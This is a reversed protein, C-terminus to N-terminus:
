RRLHFKGLEDQLQQASSSLMESSSQVEELSSMQQKTAAAVNRAEEATNRTIGVMEGIAATVEQTSASVEEAAASVEQIHGAVQGISQLVTGIAEVAEKNAAMGQETVKTSEEMSSTVQSLLTRVNGVLTAISQASETAQEALKRVENAVVMFGRGQDGARAAEINANLALLHTQASIEMIVSVISDIENSHQNLKVTLESSQHVATHIGNMQHLTEQLKTEGLTAGKTMESAVDSVDAATEAIRNIATAVENMAQANEESVKQQVSAGDSISGVSHAINQTVSTAEVALASLEESAAAVQESIEQNHLLLTNLSDSMDNFAEGVHRLEDRTNLQFQSSLDGQAMKNAEVQLTKITSRVNSYFGLYFLLVIIMAVFVIVLTTTRNLNLTDYRDSLLQNLEEVILTYLKQTGEISNKGEAVFDGSNKNFSPANLIEKDVDKLFQEVSKISIGATSEVRQATAANFDNIKAMAKQLGELQDKIQRSQIALNTREGISIQKLSLIQKGELTVQEALEIMTPLRNIMIDMVYYSDIKPDLTLGSQDAAFLNLDLLQNILQTHAEFSKQQTLKTTNSKLEDWEKEIKTWQDTVQLQDAIGKQEAEISTLLTTVQKEIEELKAKASTDGNLFEDAVERHQQVQIVVPFISKIYNVGTRENKATQIDGQLESFLSVLLVILPIVMIVSLLIFKQAYKLRSMTAAFPKLLWNNM